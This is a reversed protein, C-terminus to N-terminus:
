AAGTAPKKEQLLDFVRKYLNIRTESRTSARTVYRVQVDFGTASPLLNVVPITSFRSLNDSHTAHKWEQVATAAGEQTEELVAKQILEVL